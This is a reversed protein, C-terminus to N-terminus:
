YGRARHGGYLMVALASRCALPNSLGGYGFIVAALDKLYRPRPSLKGILALLHEFLRRFL